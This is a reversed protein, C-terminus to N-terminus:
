QATIHQSFFGLYNAGQRVRQLKRLTISQRALDGTAGFVVLVFPVVPIVGSTM